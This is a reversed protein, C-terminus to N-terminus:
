RWAVRGTALLSEADPHSPIVRVTYGMLGSAECPIEGAYEHLGDQPAGTASMPATRPEAVRRQADLPGYYLQVAVDQPTLSGLRVRARVPFSQGVRRAGDAEADVSEIRVDGFARSVRRKWEALARGRACGDRHLRDHFEAAPLYCLETYEWLMRNTSFFPTLTQMSRKM